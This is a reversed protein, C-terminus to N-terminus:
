QTTLTLTIDQALHRCYTKELLRPSSMKITCAIIINTHVQLISVLVKLILGIELEM